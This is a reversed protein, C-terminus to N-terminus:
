RARQPSPFGGKLLGESNLATKPTGTDDVHAEKSGPADGVDGKGRVHGHKSRSKAETGGPGAWGDATRGGGGRWTSPRVLAGGEGGGESFGGGRGM